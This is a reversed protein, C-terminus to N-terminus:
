WHHCTDSTSKQSACGEAAKCTHSTSNHIIQLVPEHCADMPQAIFHTM